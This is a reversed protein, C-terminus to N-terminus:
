ISEHFGLLGNLVGTEEDTPDELDAWFMRDKEKLLEPIDKLTPTKLRNGERSLAFIRIM